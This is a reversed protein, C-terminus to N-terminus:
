WESSSSFRPCKSEFRHVTLVQRQQDCPRRRWSCDEACNASHTGRQACSFYGAGQRHVATCVRSQQFKLQMLVDVVKDIFQLQKVEVVAGGRRRWTATVVGGGGLRRGALGWGVYGRSRSSRPRAKSWLSSCGRATPGSRSSPRSSLLM